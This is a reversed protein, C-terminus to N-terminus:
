AERVLQDSVLDSTFPHKLNEHPTNNKCAHQPQMQTSISMLHQKRHTSIKHYINYAAITYIILHVWEWEDM